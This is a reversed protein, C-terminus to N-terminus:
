DTAPPNSAHPTGTASDILQASMVQRRRGDITVEFQEPKLGTIPQGRKDVVQVDVSVLEVGSRFAPPQQQQQQETVAPTELLLAALVTLGLPLAAVSRVNM